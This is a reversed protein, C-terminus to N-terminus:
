KYIVKIPDLKSAKYAPVLGFIIGTLAIALFAYLFSNFSPIPKFPLINRSHITVAYGVFLGLIGGCATIFVSEILFQFLITRPKAGLARRIGIEINREMVSVYMINMIGVGGVVMSVITIIMVFKDIGKTIAETSEQITSQSQINYNGSVKPHLANVQKLVEKSVKDVDADDEVDIKLNNIEGKQYIAGTLIDYPKKPIICSPQIADFSTKKRFEKEARDYVIDLDYVGIVEYVLNNINVGKGLPSKDKFLDKKVKNNIVIVNRNEDEKTISKGEIIKYKKEANHAIVGTASAKDFFSIKAQYMNEDFGAFLQIPKASPTIKKVGKVNSLVQLDSPNFPQVLKSDLDEQIYGDNTKEQYYIVATRPAINQFTNKFLKSMANGVSSVFVVSTIGIILWIFAIILRLKHGKLNSISNKLLTFIM